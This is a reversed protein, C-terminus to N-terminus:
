VPEHPQLIEHRLDPLIRVVKETVLYDLGLDQRLDEFEHLVRDGLDLVLGDFPLDIILMVCAFTNVQVLKPTSM